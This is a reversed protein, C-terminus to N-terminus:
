WSREKLWYLTNASGRTDRTVRDDVLSAGSRLIPICPPNINEYETSVGEGWYYIAKDNRTNFPLTRSIIANQDVTAWFSPHMLYYFQNNIDLNSGIYYTDLKMKQNTPFSIRVAVKYMNTHEYGGPNGPKTYGGEKQRYNQTNTDPDIYMIGYIMNDRWSYFNTMDYMGYPKPELLVRKSNPIVSAIRSYGTGWNQTKVSGDDSVGNTLTNYNVTLLTGIETWYPLRYANKLEARMNATPMKLANARNLSPGLELGSHVYLREIPLMPRLLRLTMSYSRRGKFEDGTSGLLYRTGFEPTLQKPDRSYSSAQTTPAAGTAKKMTPHGYFLTQCFSQILGNVSKGMAALPKAPDTPMVALIYRGAVETAQNGSRAAIQTPFDKLTFTSVFHVGNVYIWENAVGTKKTGEPTWYANPEISPTASNFRSDGARLSSFDYTGETVLCNSEMTIKPDLTMPQSMYSAVRLEVFAAQPTFTMRDTRTQGATVKPTIKTGDVQVQRWGTAFPVVMSLRDGAGVKSLSMDSEYDELQDANKLARNLRFSVKGGSIEAGGFFGMMYWDHSPDLSAGAGLEVSQLTLRTKDSQGAVKEFRVGWQAKALLTKGATKDYLALVSKLSHQREAGSGNTTRDFDIKPVIHTHTEQGASYADSKLVFPLGEHTEVHSASNYAGRASQATAAIPRDDVEAELEATYTRGPRWAETVAAERATATTM